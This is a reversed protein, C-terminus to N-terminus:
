LHSGEHQVELTGSATGHRSPSGADRGASTALGRALLRGAGPAADM